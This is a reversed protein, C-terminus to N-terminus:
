EEFIVKMWASDWRSLKEEAELLKPSVALPSNLADSNDLLAANVAGQLVSGIECTVLVLENCGWCHHFTAQRSGQQQQVLPNSVQIRLIGEPHSLYSINRAMCYECDCARPTYSNLPKPLEITLRTNGCACIGRYQHNM